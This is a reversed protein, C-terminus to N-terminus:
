KSVQLDEPEPKTNFVGKWSQTTLLSKNKKDRDEETSSWYISYLDDFDGPFQDRCINKYLSIDCDDLWCLLWYTIPWFCEM